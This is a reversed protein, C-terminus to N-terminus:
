ISATRERLVGEQVRLVSNQFDAAALSPRSRAGLPGEFLIELPGVEVIPGEGEDIARQVLAAREKPMGFTVRDGSEIDVGTALALTAWRVVEVLEVSVSRM